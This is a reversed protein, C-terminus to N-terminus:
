HNYEGEKDPIPFVYANAPVTVTTGSETKLDKNLRKYYFFTQGEQIFEKKYEKTIEASLAVGDPVNTATLPNLGRASRVRNLYSLGTPLDGLANSCEAVIYYMESIRAVPVINQMAYPLGANQFFKSPVNVAKSNNDFWSLRWDLPATTGYIANKNTTALQLSTGQGGVNFMGENITNINTSYVAFLLEKSFLRDRTSATAVAVNTTSLPFKSSAIVEKANAM